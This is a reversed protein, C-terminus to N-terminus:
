NFMSQCLKYITLPDFVHGCPMKVRLTDDDDDDGLICDTELTAKINKNTKFRPYRARREGNKDFYGKDSDKYNSTVSPNLTKDIKKDNNNNKQDNNSDENNNEIDAGISNSVVSSKMEKEELENIKSSGGVMEFRIQVFSMADVGAQELTQEDRLTKSKCTLILNKAEGGQVSNVIEEKLQWVTDSPQMTNKTKKTLQGFTVHVFFGEEQKNDNEAPEVISSLSHRRARAEDRDMLQEIRDSKKMRKEEDKIEKLGNIIKNAWIKKIGFDTLDKVSIDELDAGSM